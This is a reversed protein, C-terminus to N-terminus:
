EIKNVYSKLTGRCIPLKRVQAVYDVIFNTASNVLAAYATSIIINLNRGADQVKEMDIDTIFRRFMDGGGQSQRITIM